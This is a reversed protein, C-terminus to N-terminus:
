TTPYGSIPASLTSTLELDYVANLDLFVGLANQLLSKALQQNINFLVKAYAYQTKAYNYPDLNKFLKMSKKFYIESSKLSGEHMLVVAKIRYSIGLESPIDSARLLKISQNISKLAAKYSKRSFAIEAIVRYIEGLQDDSNREKELFLAEDILSSADNVREQLLALSALSTKAAVILETIHDTTALSLAQTILREAEILLGQKTRFIGFSLYIRSQHLSSGLMLASDLAKQYLAEAEIWGGSTELDIAINQWSAIVAWQHQLHEYVELADKSYAVSRKLNGQSSCIVGLNFAVSVRWFVEEKPLLALSSELERTAHDLKGIGILISGKRFHLLGKEYDNLSTLESFGREIWELAHEPEAYELTTGLGLYIHAKIHEQTDSLRPLLNYAKQYMSQSFDLNGLFNHIQGIALLINLIQEDNSTQKELKQLLQSLMIGRGKNIEKLIDSTALHISQSFNGAAFHHQAALLADLYEEYYLAVKQHLNIKRKNGLLNYFFEHVLSYQRYEDQNVSNINILLHREALDYLIRGVEEGDLVYEIIDQNAPYGQLISMTSMVLRERDSLKKDIEKMLFRKINSSKALYEIITEPNESNILAEVSLRLLEPNGETRNYISALLLDSVTINNNKLFLIADKRDLGQLLKIVDEEILSPIKRCTLLVYINKNDCLSRIQNFFYESNSDDEALDINDFCFVARSNNILDLLYGLQIDIPHPNGHTQRTTELVKWLQDQNHYALFAALKGIITEIGEHQQFMHWFIPRDAKFQDILEVALATKGVGPPGVIVAMHNDELQRTYLNLEEERGLFSKNEPVPPPLPPPTIEIDPLIIQILDGTIRSNIVVNANSISGSVLPYQENRPEIALPDEVSHWQEKSIGLKDYAWIYTESLSQFCYEDRHVMNELETYLFLYTTLPDTISIVAKKYIPHHLTTAKLQM